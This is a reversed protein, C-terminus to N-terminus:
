PRFARARMVLELPQRRRDRRSGANLALRTLIAVFLVWSLNNPQSIISESGAALFFMALSPAAFAAVARDQLQGLLLVLSQAAIAAVLILGAFGLAIRVELWGNHASPVTWQLANRIREAELHNIEWFAGFGYGLWPRNAAAAALEGWIDTRGTLTPERGILGFLFEPAFAYLLAIAGVGLAGAWILGLQLAIRARSVSLAVALVAGILTLLLATKSTSALVLIVSAGALLAAPWRWRPLLIAVAIAAASGRAMAAGFANKEFWLGRWAGVHIESMVGFSPSVIVAIVSGLALSGFIAAVFLAMQAWSLRLGLVLGFGTTMALALSRRLTLELAHSWLSSLLALMVLALVLVLRPAAHLVDRLQWALLGAIAAYVPLWAIRLVPSGDPDDPTTLLPGLLAESMMLAIAGFTLWLAPALPRAAAPAALSM